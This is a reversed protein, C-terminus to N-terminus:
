RYEYYCLITERQKGGEREGERRKQEERNNEKGKEGRVGTKGKKKEEQFPIYKHQGPQTHISPRL